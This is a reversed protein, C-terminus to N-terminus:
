PFQWGVAQRLVTQEVQTDVSATATDHLEACALLSSMFNSM